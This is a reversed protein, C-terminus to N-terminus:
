KKQDLPGSSSGSLLREEEALLPVIMEVEWPEFSRNATQTRCLSLEALALDANGLHRHARTLLAHGMVESSPLIRVLFEGFDKVLNWDEFTDRYFVSGFFDNVRNVKALLEADSDMAEETPTTM